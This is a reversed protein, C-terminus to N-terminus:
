KFSELFKLDIGPEILERSKNIIETINFEQGFLKKGTKLLLQIMQRPEILQQHQSYYSIAYFIIQEFFNRAAIDNTLAFNSSFKNIAGLIIAAFQFNIVEVANNLLVAYNVFDNSPINTNTKIAEILNTVTNKLYELQIYMTPGQLIKISQEKINQNSWNGSAFDNLTLTFRKDLLGKIVSQNKKIYESNAKKVLAYNNLARQAENRTGSVNIIKKILETTLIESPLSPIERSGNELTYTIMAFLSGAIILSHLLKM